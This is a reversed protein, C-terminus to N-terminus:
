RALPRPVQSLIGSAIEATRDVFDRLRAPSVTNGPLYVVIWDYYGEVHFPSKRASLFSRVGPTFMSAASIADAGRVVYHAGFEPHSDFRVEEGGFAARLKQFVTRPSVQFDPMNAGPLRFAAVTQTVEHRYKGSGEEHWYDFILAEFGAASGKLVNRYGANGNGKAFLHMEPLQVLDDAEPFFGM